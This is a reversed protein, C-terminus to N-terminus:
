LSLVQAYAKSKKERTKIIKMLLKLWKVKHYCTFPTPNVFHSEILFLHIQIIRIYTM